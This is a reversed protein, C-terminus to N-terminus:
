WNEGEFSGTKCQYSGTLDMFRPCQVSFFVNPIYQSNEYFFRSFCFIEVTFFNVCCFPFEKLEIQILISRSKKWRENPTQLRTSFASSSTLNNDWKMKRFTIKESFNTSNTWQICKAIGSKIFCIRPFVLSDRINLKWHGQNMNQNFINEFMKFNWSFEMFFEPSFYKENERSICLTNCPGRM